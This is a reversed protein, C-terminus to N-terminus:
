NNQIPELKTDCHFLTSSSEFSYLNAHSTSSPMCVYREEGFKKPVLIQVYARERERVMSKIYNLLKREWILM